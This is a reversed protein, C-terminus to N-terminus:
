RVSVKLSSPLCDRIEYIRSIRQFNYEGTAGGLGDVEYRRSPTAQIEPGPVLNQDADGFMRGIHPRPLQYSSGRPSAHPEEVDLVAALGLHRVKLAIEVRPSPNYGDAM